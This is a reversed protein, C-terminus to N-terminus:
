YCYECFRSDPNHEFVETECLTKIWNVLETEFAQLLVPDMRDSDHDLFMYGGQHNVMSYIGAKINNSPHNSQYMYTYLMLQLAKSFKFDSFLMDCTKPLKLKDPDIKGTKYDIIEITNQYRDIRDSKGRVLVPFGLGHAQGDIEKSLIEEVGIVEREAYDPLANMRQRENSIYQKLMNGALKRLLLNEGSSANSISYNEEISEDIRQDLHREL